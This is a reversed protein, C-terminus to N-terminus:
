WVGLLRGALMALVFVLGAVARGYIADTTRRAHHIQDRDHIDSQSRRGM